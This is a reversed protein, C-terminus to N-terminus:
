AQGRTRISVAINHARLDGQICSSRGCGCVCEEAFVACAEREKEAVLKAFALFNKREGKKIIGGFTQCALEIIEDKTM